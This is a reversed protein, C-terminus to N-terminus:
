RNDSGDFRFPSRSRMRESEMGSNGSRPGRDLEQDSLLRSPSDRYSDSRTERSMKGGDEDDVERREDGAMLGEREEEVVEDWRGFGAGGASEGGEDGSGVGVRVSGESGVDDRRFAVWIAGTLIFGSGIWSWISPTEGFVIRDGALAFLMQTYVMSTARTSSGKLLPEKPKRHRTRTRQGSPRQHSATPTLNTTPDLNASTDIITPHTNTASTPTPPTVGLRPSPPPTRKSGQLHIPSLEVVDGEDPSEGGERRGEMTRLLGLGEEAATGSVRRRRWEDDRGGDREKEGVGPGGGTGYSLGRTLLWQMVFGCGGLSALLGWEMANGPFRFKVDEFVVLCALSMLTCFVSFYNISLFPHAANGIARISTMAGTAGIVGLLSIAIATLHQSTTVHAYTDTPATDPITSNMAGQGATTSSSSSDGKILSFPQAIFVVGVLSVLGALQQSRNFSGQEPLWWACVYCTLIPSLFTLVTAESLPLYLLSFYMGFVGLFGFVGRMVLLLRIRLNRPGFPFDPITGSYMAWITCTLATISQRAFLIQFPHMGPGHSSTHELIRTSLNMLCGFFQSLLVLLSGYNQTYLNELTTRLKSKPNNSSTSYTTYTSDHSPTPILPNNPEHDIASFTLSDLDTNSDLSHRSFSSNSINIHSPKPTEDNLLHHDSTSASPVATSDNSINLLDDDRNTNNLLSM